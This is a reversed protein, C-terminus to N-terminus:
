DSFYSFNSAIKSKKSRQIVIKPDRSSRKKRGETIKKTQLVGGKKKM